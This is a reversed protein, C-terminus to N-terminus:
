AFAASRRSRQDCEIRSGAHAFFYSGHVRLGFEERGFAAMNIFERVALRVRFSRDRPGANPGANGGTPVAKGSGRLAIDNEGAGAPHLDAGQGSLADVRAIDYENWGAAALTDGTQAVLVEDKEGDTRGPETGLDIFVHIGIWCRCTQCGCLSTPARSKMSHDIVM